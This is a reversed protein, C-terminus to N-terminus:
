QNSYLYILSMMGRFDNDFYPGSEYDASVKLRLNDIMIKRSGAVSLFISTDEGYIADGYKAYLLDCSLQDLLVSGTIEKYGYIRALLMDNRDNEGGRSVGFEGGIGTLDEGHWAVTLAGYNSADGQDYDNRALKFGAELFGTFNHTIDLGYSSLKESTQAM